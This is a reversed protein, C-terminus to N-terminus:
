SKKSSQRIALVVVLAVLLVVSVTWIWMGSGMWGGTHNMMFDGLVRKFPEYGVGVLDQVGCVTSLTNVSERTM